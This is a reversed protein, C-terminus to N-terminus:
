DLVITIVAYAFLEVYVLLRFLKANTESSFFVSLRTEYLFYLIATSSNLLTYLVVYRAGPNLWLVKYYLLAVVAKITYLFCAAFCTRDFFTNRTALRYGTAASLGVGVVLSISYFVADLDAAGM